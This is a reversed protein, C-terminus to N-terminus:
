NSSASILESCQQFRTRSRIFLHALTLVPLLVIIYLFREYAGDIGDPLVFFWPSLILWVLASARLWYGYRVDIKGADKAMLWPILTFLCAFLYVLNTHIVFGDSDADGYENRAGVLFVVLAQVGLGGVAISWRSEGLHIHAALLALALLTASFAYLGIDVIYEFEGAGLDSVTDAIWDHNPVVIDAILISTALIVCGIVSYWGLVCVFGPRCGVQINGPKTAKSQVAIDAM